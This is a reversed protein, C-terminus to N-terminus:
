ASSRRPKPSRLVLQKIAEAVSLIRESRALYNDRADSLLRRASADVRYKWTPRRIQRPSQKYSIVVNLEEGAGVNAAYRLVGSRAEFSTPKGGVTVSAVRTEDEPKELTLAVNGPAPNKLRLTPTFHRVAFHDAATQRLVCTSALTQGLPAWVLDTRLTSADRVFNAFATYGQRFYGHHEVALLPKQFLIDFAHDFLEGPYRRLFIPFNDYRTVAVHLLDRITLPANEHDVPWVTTNVAADFGCAKLAPIAKRSFRGQPFIMVNDCPMATLATHVAMREVALAATGALWEADASAFEGGTHDCGHVAISFRHANSRLLSVTRPSSRRHNYPIFAITMASRAEELQRMLTEYHIFGYRSKLYPDDVIFTAGTVPSSWCAAGFTARLFLSLAVLQAYHPRLSANAPVTTDIDVIGTGALLFITTPSRTISVFLPSGNVSLHTEVGAPRGPGVFVAVDAAELPYSKGAVPFNAFRDEAHVTVRFKGRPLVAVNSLAGATLWALDTLDTAEPAFDYVFIARTEDLRRQFWDQPMLQRLTARSLALVHDAPRSTLAEPEVTLSSSIPVFQTPVGLFAAFKRVARDSSTGDSGDCSLVSLIANPSM